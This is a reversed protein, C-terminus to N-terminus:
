YPGADHNTYFVGSEPSRLDMFYYNGDGEALCFLYPPWDEGQCGHILLYQNEKVIRVPDNFERQWDEGDSGHSSSPLAKAWQRYNEPLSIVLHSEIYQLDSETM